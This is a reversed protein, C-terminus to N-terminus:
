CREGLQSEGSIDLERDTTVVVGIVARRVNKEGGTGGKSPNERRQAGRIPRVDYTTPSLYLKMEGEMTARYEHIWTPVPAYFTSRRDIEQEGRLTTNVRWGRAPRMRWTKLQLLVLLQSALWATM